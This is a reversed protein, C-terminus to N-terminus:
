RMRLTGVECGRMFGLAAGRAVLRLDGDITEDVLTKEASEGVRRAFLQLRGAGDLHVCVGTDLVAFDLAEPGPVSAAQVDYRGSRVDVRFVTRSFADGRRSLVMLVGGECRADVVRAGDLEPLHLTLCGRPGLLTAHTAGLLAQLAVGDYLRTAHAAVHAVVQPAVVLIPGAEVLKLEVLNRGSLGYLCGGAECLADIALGFALTRQHHADWLWLGDPELAGVVPAGHRPSFGIFAAGRPGRGARKGDVYIGDTTVVVARGHGTAVTRVPSRFRDTVKVQVSVGDGLLRPLIADVRGPDPPPPTRLRAGFVGRYWRRLRAPICQVTGAAPPLVVDPDFVSIDALMRDDLSRLVPHKGRYPHVGTFLQFTVVAFAFWDTAVSFHGSPQHRDRVTDMLATAPFGPLQYSDADIFYARQFSADVLVNLANLDVVLAGAAHVRELTEAMTYLLHTLRQVDLGHRARFARSFLRCLPYTHPVFVMTYGVPVGHADRLVGTPSLVEPSDLAALAAIKGVPIVDSPDHYIKYAVGDRAYVSGQAGQAVFDGPGLNVSQGQETFVRM